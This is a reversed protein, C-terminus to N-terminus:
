LTDLDYCLASTTSFEDRAGRYTCRLVGFAQVFPTKRILFPHCPGSKNVLGWKCATDCNEIIEYDCSSDERCLTNGYVSYSVGVRPIVTHERAEICRFYDPNWSFIYHGGAHWEYVMSGDWNGWCLPQHKTHVFYDGLDDGDWPLDVEVLTSGYSDSEGSVTRGNPSTITIEVAIEDASFDNDTAGAAVIVLADPNTDDIWLDSYDTQAMTPAAFACFAIMMLVRLSIRVAQSRRSSTSEYNSM